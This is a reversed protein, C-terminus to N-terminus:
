KRSTKAIAKSDFLNRAESLIRNVAMGGKNNKPLPAVTIKRVCIENGLNLGLNNAAVTNLYHPSKFASKEIYLSRNINSLEKFIEKEKGLLYGVRIVSIHQWLCLFSAIFLYLARKFIKKDKKKARRM